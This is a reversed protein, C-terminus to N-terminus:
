NSSLSMGYGAGFSYTGGTIVYGGDSTQQISNGFDWNRGGITKAWSLNGSSDLKIVFVDEDGAGFSYTGGTIVYGGDSTQQISNGFDWYTGGITKQFLSSGIQKQKILLLDQNPDLREITLKATVDTTGIGVNGQNDVVLANITGTAVHLIGAPTSTGIGLRLNNNDWFLAQNGSLTTTGTYFSINGPTSTGTLSPLVTCNPDGPSCSPDLTEGPLYPSLPPIAKAINYFVLSLFIGIIVYFVLRKTNNQGIIRNM